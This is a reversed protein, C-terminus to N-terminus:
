LFVELFSAKMSTIPSLIAECVLADLISFNVANGPTPAAVAFFSTSALSSVTDFTAEAPAELSILAPIFAATALFIADAAFLASLAADAVLATALLAFAAAFFAGALALAVALLAFAAAFFAGALALFKALLTFDFVSFFSVDPVLFIPGDGLVGRDFIDHNLFKFFYNVFQEIVRWM